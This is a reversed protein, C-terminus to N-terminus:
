VKESVILLINEIRQLESTVEGLSERSSFNELCIKQLLEILRINSSKPEPDSIRVSFEQSRLSLGRPQLFTKNLNREFITHDFSIEYFRWGQVCSSPFFHRSFNELSIKQVKLSVKGDGM